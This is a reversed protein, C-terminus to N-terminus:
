AKNHWMWSLLSPTPHKIPKTQKFGPCMWNWRTTWEHHQMHATCSVTYVYSICTLLQLIKCSTINNCKVKDRLKVDTGSHLWKSFLWSCVQIESRTHDANLIIEVYKWRYIDFNETDIVKRVKGHCFAGKVEGRQLMQPKAHWAM